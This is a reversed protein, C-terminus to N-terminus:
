SKPKTTLSGACRLWNMPNFLYLIFYKRLKYTIMVLIAEALMVVMACECSLDSETGADHVVRNSLLFTSQPCFASLMKM